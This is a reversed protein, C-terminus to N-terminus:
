NLEPTTEIYRFVDLSISNAGYVFFIQKSRARYNATKHWLFQSAQRVEMEARRRLSEGLLKDHTCTLLRASQRKRKTRVSDYDVNRPVGWERDSINRTWDLIAM